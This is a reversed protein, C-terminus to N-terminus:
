ARVSLFEQKLMKKCKKALINTYNLFFDYRQVRNLLWRVSKTQRIHYNQLCIM